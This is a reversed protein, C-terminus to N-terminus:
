LHQNTLRDFDQSFTTWSQIERIMSGMPISTAPSSLAVLSRFIFYYASVVVAQLMILCNTM